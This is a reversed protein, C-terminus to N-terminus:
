ELGRNFKKIDEATIEPNHRKKKKPIEIDKKIEPTTAGTTKGMYNVNISGTSTEVSIKGPNCGTPIEKPVYRENDKTTMGTVNIKGISTDVDVIAPVYVNLTVNGVSSEIYLEGKTYVDLTIQGASTEISGGHKIVGTVNGTRTEIQVELDSNQEPLELLGDLSDIELNGHYNEAENLSGKIKVKDNKSIGLILNQFRNDVEVTKVSAYEDEYEKEEELEKVKIKGDKIVAYKTGDPSIVVNNIISGGQFEEPVVVGNIRMTM